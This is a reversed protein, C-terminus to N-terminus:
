ESRGEEAEEEAASESAGGEVPAAEAPTGAKEKEAKAEAPASGDDQAMVNVTIEATQAEYL